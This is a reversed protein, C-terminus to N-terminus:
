LIRIVIVMIYLFAGAALADPALKRIVALPIINRDFDQIGCIWGSRHNLRIRGIRRISIVDRANDIGVSVTRCIGVLFVVTRHKRHTFRSLCKGRPCLILIIGHITKRLNALDDAIDTHSSGINMRIIRIVAIPQLRNEMRIVRIFSRCIRKGIPRKVTTNISHLINSIQVNLTRKKASAPM